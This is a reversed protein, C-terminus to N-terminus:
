PADFLGPPVEASVEIPALNLVREGDVQTRTPALRVRHDGEGYWSWGQWLWATPDADEPQSQLRYAWRDMLGTERDVYAWYRDGPTLGVGAFTLQLVDYTQADLEVSGDYRLHVGPDLLKYPMLLWYTDNVWAGYALELLEAAKEGRVEQGDLWARGQRTSLNEIVLYHQGDRDTGEVRHLGHQKDWYHTRRGAFDFRLLRVHDWAAAGGLADLVREAVARAQPDADVRPTPDAAAAATLLLTTVLPVLLYPAARRRAHTPHM